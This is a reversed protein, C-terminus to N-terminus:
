FINNISYIICFTDTHSSDTQRPFGPSDKRFLTREEEIYRGRIGRSNLFRMDHDAMYYTLHHFPLAKFARILLYGKTESKYTPFSSPNNM